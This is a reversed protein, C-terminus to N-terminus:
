MRQILYTMKSVSELLEQITTGQTSISMKYEIDKRLEQKQKPMMEKRNVADHSWLEYQVPNM